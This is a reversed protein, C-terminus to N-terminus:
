EPMSATYEALKVKVFPIVPLPASEKYVSELANNVRGDWTKLEDISRYFSIDPLPMHRHMRIGECFAIVKMDESFLPGGSDGFYSHVNTRILGKFPEAYMKPSTVQGFDIRPDDLLGCGVHFVKSNIYLKKGFQIDATHLQNKSTFAVIVMDCESDQALITGYHKEINVVTSWDKYEPVFVFVPLEITHAAGIALNHWEDGVKTSRVIFGSGGSHQLADSFKVVPYICKRHLKKDSASLDRLLEHPKAQSNPTSIICVTATTCLTLLLITILKYM